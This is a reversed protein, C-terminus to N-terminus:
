SSFARSPAPGAARAHGLRYVIRGRLDPPDLRTLSRILMSASGADHLPWSAGCMMRSALRALSTIPRTGPNGSVAPAASSAPHPKGAHERIRNLGLGRRRPPSTSCRWGRDLPFRAIRDGRVSGIWIEKGVQLASTAGFFVDNSPYHVIERFTFTEPDIRAVKAATGPCKYASAHRSQM